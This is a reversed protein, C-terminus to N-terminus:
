NSSCSYILGGQKIVTNYSNRGGLNNTLYIEDGDDEDEHYAVLAYMNFNAKPFQIYVRNDNMKKLEDLTLSKLDSM